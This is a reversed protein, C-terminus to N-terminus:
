QTESPQPLSERKGLSYKEDATWTKFFLGFIELIVLLSM